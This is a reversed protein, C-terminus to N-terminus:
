VSNKSKHGLKKSLKGFNNKIEEFKEPSVYRKFLLPLYTFIPIVMGIKDYESQILMNYIAHYTVAVTMLAFLGTVFLKKRKRIYSIGYGVILTCMGHMLGTGFGRTISLLMSFEGTNKVLVYANEMLAFGIGTSIAVTFLEEKKDSIAIAFFLVPLAKLMEETIPAVTVTMEYMDNVFLRYIFGNVESALVAVFMGVLVFVVPLRAKKEVILMMLLLPVFISVFLIYIM